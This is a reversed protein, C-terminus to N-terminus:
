IFFSYIRKFLQKVIYKNSYLKKLKEINKKYIGQLQARRVDMYSMYQLKLFIYLLLIKKSVAYRLLM